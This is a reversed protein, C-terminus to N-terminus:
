ATMEAAAAHGIGTATNLADALIPLERELDGLVCGPMAAALACVAVLALREVARLEPLTATRTAGLLVDAALHYRLEEVLRGDGGPIVEHASAQVIADAARGLVLAHNEDSQRAALERVWAAAAEGADVALALAERVAREREERAAAARAAAQEAREDDAALGDPDDDVARRDAVPLFSLPNTM